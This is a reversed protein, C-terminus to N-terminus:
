RPSTNTDSGDTAAQRCLLKSEEDTVNVRFTGKFVPASAIFRLWYHGPAKANASIAALNWNLFSRVVYERVLTDLRAEADDKTAGSVMLNFDLCHALWRTPEKAPNSYLYCVHSPLAKIFDDVNHKRLNM